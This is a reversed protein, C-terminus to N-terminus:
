PSETPVTVADDALDAVRGPAFGVVVTFLLAIALAV